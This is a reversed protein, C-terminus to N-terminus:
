NYLTENVVASVLLPEPLNWSPTLCEWVAAPCSSGAAREGGRVHMVANPQCQFTVAVGVNRATYPNEATSPSPPPV